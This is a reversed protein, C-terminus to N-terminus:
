NVSCRGGEVSVSGASRARGGFTREGGSGAMQRRAWSRGSRLFPAARRFPLLPRLGALGITARLEEAGVGLFEQSGVLPMADTTLYVVSLSFM